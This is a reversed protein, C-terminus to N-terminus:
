DWVSFSTRLTWVLCDLDNCRDPDSSRLPRNFNRAALVPSKQSLIGGGVTGFINWFFRFFLCQLHSTKFDVSSGIFRDSGIFCSIRHPKFDPVLTYGDTHNRLGGWIFSDLGLCDM